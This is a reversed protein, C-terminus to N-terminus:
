AHHQVDVGEEELARLFGVRDEPSVLVRQEGEFLVVRQVDTAYVRTTEGSERYVGTYYGPVATGAVRWLRSPSYDKARAGKTPWRKRGFLTRVEFAGDGV